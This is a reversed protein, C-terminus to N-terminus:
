ILRVPLVQDLGAIELARAAIAQRPLIVEALQPAVELLVRLGSSDFFTSATLDVVARPYCEVAASVADRFRPATDMDVDGVVVVMATGEAATTTIDFRAM